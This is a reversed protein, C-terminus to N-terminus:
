LKLVSARSFFKLYPKCFFKDLKFRARALHLLTFDIVRCYNIRRLLPPSKLDYVSNVVFDIQMPIIGRLRIQIVHNMKRAKMDM